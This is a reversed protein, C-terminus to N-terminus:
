KEEKLWQKLVSEDMVGLDHVTDRLGISSKSLIDLTLNYYVEFEDEHGFYADIAQRQHFVSAYQVSDALTNSKSFARECCNINFGGAIDEGFTNLIEEVVVLPYKVLKGSQVIGAIVLSFGHRCLSLFIGTKDYIAWTKKLADDKMNKWRGVCPNEESETADNAGNMMEQIVGYAWKDVSQRTLYRDGDVERSDPLKCTKGVLQNNDEPTTRRVIGKLSDNGDMIYLMRFMLENEGNIAYTCPNLATRVLMKVGSRISMYLDFAISFQRSPYCCFPLGHLDCLSKVFAQISIQPTRIHAVRYLELTDSTIGIFMDVVEVKLSGMGGISPYMTCEAQHIMDSCNLCWEMYTDILEPLQEQFALNHRHIRNRRTQYDVRRPICEYVIKGKNQSMQLGKLWLLPDLSKMSKSFKKDM